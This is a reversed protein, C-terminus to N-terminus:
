NILQNIPRQSRTRLTIAQAHPLQRILSALSFLAAAVEMESFHDTKHQAGIGM